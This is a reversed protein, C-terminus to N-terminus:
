YSMVLGPISFLPPSCPKGEDHEVFGDMAGGNASLQEVQYEHNQDCTVQRAPGGLRMPQVSNPNHTSLDPTLGDIAPTDPRGNFPQGDINAAHPYMGFYHDVPINEQFIVVLHHIPTATAPGASLDHTPALVRHRSCASRFRHRFAAIGHRLAM